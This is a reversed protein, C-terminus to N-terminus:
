ATPAMRQLVSEPLQSLADVTMNGMTEPSYPEASTTGTGAGALLPPQNIAARPPVPSGPAPQTASAGPAPQAGGNTPAGPAPPAAPAAKPALLVDFGMRKGQAIVEKRLLMTHASTAQLKIGQRKLSDNALVSLNEVQEKSLGGLWPNAAYLQHTELRVAPDNVIAREQDEPRPANAAAELQTRRTDLAREQKKLEAYSIEGQDYQLALADQAADIDAVTQPGQPAAAAPSGAAPTTPQASTKDALGQTYALEERTRQLEAATQQLRANVEDFRPKPIMPPPEAAPAPSPSPPAATGPAPPETGAPADPTLAPDGGAAVRAAEQAQEELGLRELEALQLDEPRQLPEPTPAAPAQGAPASAPDVQAPQGGEPAEAPAQTGNTGTM